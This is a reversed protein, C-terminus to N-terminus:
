QLKNEIYCAIDRVTHLQLADEEPIEIDYTDEFTIVINMFDLSNLKLDEALRSDSTISGVPVPTYDKLIAIIQDSM